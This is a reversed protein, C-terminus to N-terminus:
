ARKRPRNFMPSDARGYPDGAELHRQWDVPFIQELWAREWAGPRYIGQQVHDIITSVVDEVTNGGTDSHTLVELLKYVTDSVEITIKPM